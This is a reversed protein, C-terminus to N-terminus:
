LQVGCNLFFILDFLALNQSLNCVSNCRFVVLLATGWNEFVCNEGEMNQIFCQKREKLRQRAQHSDGIVIVQKM